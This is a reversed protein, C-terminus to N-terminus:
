RWDESSMLLNRGWEMKELLINQIGSSQLQRLLFTGKSTKRVRSIKGIQFIEAITEWNVEADKIETPELPETCNLYITVSAQEFGTPGPWHKTFRGTWITYDRGAPSTTQIDVDLAELGPRAASLLSNLEVAVTDSFPQEPNM